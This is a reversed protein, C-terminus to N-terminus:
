EAAVSPCPGSAYGPRKAAFRQRNLLWAFELVAFIAVLRDFVLIRGRSSVSKSPRPWRQIMWFLRIKVWAVDGFSINQLYISSSELGIGSRHVSTPHYSKFSAYSPSKGAFWAQHRLWAPELEAFITAMRGSVLIRSVAVLYNKRHLSTSFGCFSTNKTLNHGEAEPSGM